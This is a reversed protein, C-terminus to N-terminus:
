EATDSRGRGCRPVSLTRKTISAWCTCSATCWCCAFSAKPDGPNNRAAVAPAIVVDGLLRVGNESAEDDMPFSLVDTSGPEDMYRVHLREMEDEEVFSISLEAAHIDEGALTARALSVLGAEDIEASQRNSVSILEAM